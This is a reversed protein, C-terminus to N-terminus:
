KWHLFSQIGQENHGKSVFVYFTHEDVTTPLFSGSIFTFLCASKQVNQARVFRTELM